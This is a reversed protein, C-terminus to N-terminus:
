DPWLVYGKGRVTQLLRPARPDDDLKRRLRSMQVDIARDPASGTIRGLDERSFTVGPQAVFIRLLSLENSSLHVVQAGQKLEGRRTDLLWPGIKVMPALAEPTNAAVRRLITRIRLVLERPEFPKALYDDAGAELGEIRAEAEGKATLLLVPASKEGRLSRTLDLGSEGPMMVDLVVLDFEISKLKARAEAANEAVTVLFGNETLYRRLLARLRSDDDVVLLHPREEPELNAPSDHAPESM